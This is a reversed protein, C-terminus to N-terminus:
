STWWLEDRNSEGPQPDRKMVGGGGRQRGMDTEKPPTIDSTTNDSISLLVNQEM